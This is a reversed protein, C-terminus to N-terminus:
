LRERVDRKRVFRTILSSAALDHSLVNVDVSNLLKGQIEAAVPASGGRLGSRSLSLFAHLPLSPPLSPLHLPLSPPLVYM